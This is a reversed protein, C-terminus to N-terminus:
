PGLRVLQSYEIGDVTIEEFVKQYAIELLDHKPRGVEVFNFFTHDLVWSEEIPRSQAVVAIKEIHIDPWCIGVVKEPKIPMLKAVRIVAPAAVLGLGGVIFGRRNM